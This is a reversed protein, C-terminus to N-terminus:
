NEEFLHPIITEWGNERDPLLDLHYSFFTLEKYYHEWSRKFIDEDKEKILKLTTGCWKRFRLSTRESYQELLGQRSLEFIGILIAEIYEQKDFKIADTIIQDLKNKLEDWQETIEIYTTRIIDKKDEQIRYKIFYEDNIEMKVNSRPGIFIMLYKLRDSSQSSSDDCKMNILIDQLLQNM